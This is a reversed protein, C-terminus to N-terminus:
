SVKNDDFRYLRFKSLNHNSSDLMETILIQIKEKYDETSSGAKLGKTLKQLEGAFEKIEKSGIYAM